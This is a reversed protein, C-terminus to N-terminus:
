LLFGKRLPADFTKIPRQQQPSVKKKSDWNDTMESIRESINTFEEEVINAINSVNIADGRMALRDGSNKAKPVLVALLIYAPIAFGGGVSFVVFALRVWLPDEIGFYAAVGSCVGAVVEDEPDRFLRKGTKYSNKKQGGGDAHSTDEEEAMAGFDEPTGMISVAEEVTRLTVIPQSGLNEQFLEAMRAEIDSTIEEYGESSSFHRHITKLYKSLYDYADSDITFPYGGLNINFVKNM